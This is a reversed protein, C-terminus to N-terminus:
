LWDLNVDLKKLNKYPEKHAENNCVLKDILENQDSYFPDYNFFEEFEIFSDIRSLLCAKNNSFCEFLLGSIRYEFEKPYNLIVLNSLLFITKYELDSLRYDIGFINSCSNYNVGKVILLIRKENLLNQLKKSNILSMIFSDGLKKATPIFVIKNYSRYNITKDRLKLVDAKFDLKHKKYLGISDVKVNKIGELFYAQRISESLAIFTHRKALKKFFYMKLFNDTKSFNSHNLLFFSRKSKLLGLALEDFSSLFVHDYYKLKTFYVIRISVMLQYFHFLYKSKVDIFFDPIDWISNVDINNKIKEKLRKSLIVDVSYGKEKCKNIYRENLNDHGYPSM